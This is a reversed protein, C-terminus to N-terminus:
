PVRENESSPAARNTSSCTTEKLPAAYETIWARMETFWERGLLAESKVSVQEIRLRGGETVFHLRRTPVWEMGPVRCVLGQCSRDGEDVLDKLLQTIQEASFRALSESCLREVHRLQEVCAGEECFNDWGCNRDAECPRICIRENSREVCRDGEDCGDNPGADLECTQPEAPSGEVYRVYLIGRSPDILADVSREGTMFPLLFAFLSMDNSLSVGSM